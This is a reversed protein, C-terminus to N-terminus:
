EGQPWSLTCALDVGAAENRVMVQESRYPFPAHPEQPRQREMAAAQKDLSLPQSEGGQTWRGTITTADAALEGSFEAM